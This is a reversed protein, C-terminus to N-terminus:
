QPERGGAREVPLARLTYGRWDENFREVLKKRELAEATKTCGGMTDTRFYRAHLGTLFHVRIGKRMADLLEHQAKSLIM